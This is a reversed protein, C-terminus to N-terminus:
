NGVRQPRLQRIASPEDNGDSRRTELRQRRHLAVAILEAGQFPDGAREHRQYALVSPTLTLSRDPAIVSLRWSTQISKSQADPHFTNYNWANFAWLDSM